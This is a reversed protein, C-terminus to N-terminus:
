GWLTGVHPLDSQQPIEWLGHQAPSTRKEQSSESATGYWAVRAPSQRRVVSHTQTQNPVVRATARNPLTDLLLLLNGSRGPVAPLTDLPLFRVTHWHGLLFGSRHSYWFM